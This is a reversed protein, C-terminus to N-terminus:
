IKGLVALVKLDYDVATDIIDIEHKNLLARLSQERFFNIHEGVVMNDPPPMRYAPVEIYLYQKTLSKLSQVFQDLDSVHELVQCSMVLDFTNNNSLDYRQIGSLLPRGSVDYVFKNTAEPIYVGNDGGYDLVSELKKIHKKIFTTIFQKRQQVYEESYLDENYGPECEQRQQTYTEDRYDKYLRTTEDYTFRQVSYHFGCNKCNGLLNFMNWQPKIGTSRWIVFQSMYAPLLTPRNGCCPCYFQIYM